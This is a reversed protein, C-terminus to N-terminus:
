FGNSIRKTATTQAATGSNEAGSDSNTEVPVSCPLIQGHADACDYAGDILMLNSLILAILSALTTM